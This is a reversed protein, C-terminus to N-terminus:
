EDEGNRHNRNILLIGGGILILPWLFKFQFNPFIANFALYGGLAILAIGFYMKNRRDKEEPELEESSYDKKTEYSENEYEDSEYDYNDTEDYVYTAESTQEKPIVIACIIYAIFGPGGLLASIVWIIRVITVDINFYKAVGGCVGAIVNEKRSRRLKREM